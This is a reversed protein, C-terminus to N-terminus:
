ENNEKIRIREWIEKDTSVCANNDNNMAYEKCINGTCDGGM